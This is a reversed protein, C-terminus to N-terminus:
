RLVARGRPSLRYGTGLSETLGLAKLRRVDRKFAEKPRGALPALDGARVGPHKALLALLARDKPRLRQAVADADGTKRRLAVRPDPGALRLRIRYIPGSPRLDSRAEEVSAYGARRADAPRVTDVADVSVIELRGISTLLSSGPKVRPSSWRRLALDIKGAKLGRLVRDTFLM